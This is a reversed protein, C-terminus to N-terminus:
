NWSFVTNRLEKLLFIWDPTIVVQCQIEAAEQPACCHHDRTGILFNTKVVIILCYTCRVGREWSPSWNWRSGKNIHLSNERCCWTVLLLFQTLSPTCVASTFAPPSLGPTLPSQTEGRGCRKCGSHSGHGVEQATLFTLRSQVCLSM